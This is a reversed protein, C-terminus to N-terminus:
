YCKKCPRRNYKNVADKESMKIIGHSCRSLGSCNSNSHYAYASPSDCVYVVADKQRAKNIKELHIFDAYINGTLFLFSLLIIIKKM